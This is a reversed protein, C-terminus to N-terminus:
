QGRQENHLALHLGHSSFLKLNEPRNDDKIGNKHHLTEERKLYRGLIREMVLRHELVYGKKDAFPHEPKWILIYGESTRLRGGKWNKSKSGVQAKKIKQKVEEPTEIGKNWPVRGMCAESITRTKIKFRRLWRLITQSSINCLEAIKVTSLREVWYMQYLWDKDKYKM